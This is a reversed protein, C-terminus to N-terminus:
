QGDRVYEERLDLRSVGGGGVEAGEREDEGGM